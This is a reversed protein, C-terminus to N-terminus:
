LTFEIREYGPTIFGKSISFTLIRGDALVDYGVGLYAKLVKLNGTFIWTVTYDYEVSDPKYTDEYVNMGKRLSGKFTIYFTIYPRNEFGRFGLDVGIVRPFVRKGNIKVVEKDIFSQMNSVVKDLEKNLEEESDMLRWYYLEEDVYDFIVEQLVDGNECVVFTGQGYIPRISEIM